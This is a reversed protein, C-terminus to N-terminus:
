GTTGKDVPILRGVVEEAVMVDGFFLLFSDLTATHEKDSWKATADSLMTSATALDIKGLKVGLRPYDSRGIGRIIHVDGLRKAGGAEGHRPYGQFGV